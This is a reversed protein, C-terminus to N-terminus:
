LFNRVMSVVKGDATTIVSLVSNPLGGSNPLSITLHTSDPRAITFVNSGKTITAPRNSGDLTVVLPSGSLLGVLAAVQASTMFRADEGKAHPNQIGALNGAADFILRDKPTITQFQDGVAM